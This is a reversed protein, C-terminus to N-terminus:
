LRRESTGSVSATQDRDRMKLELGKRLREQERALTARAAVIKERREAMEQQKQVAVGQPPRAEKDGSLRRQSVASGDGTEGADPQSRGLQQRKWAGRQAREKAEAVERRTIDGHQKIAQRWKSVDLQCKWHLHAVEFSFLSDAAWNREQLMGRTVDAVAFGVYHRQMDHMQTSTSYRFYAVIKRISTYLNRLLSTKRKGPRVALLQEALTRGIVKEALREPKLFKVARRNTTETSISAAESSRHATPPSQGFNVRVHSSRAENGPSFVSDKDLCSSGASEDIVLGPNSDTDSGEREEATSVSTCTSSRQSNSPPPAPKPPEDAIGGRGMAGEQSPRRSRTSDTSSQSPIKNRTSETSPKRERTSDTSSRRKRTSDTSPRRERTSDTSPRRERTSETSPRRERTSDTSPRREKTSDTSPEGERTSDTSPRREKTSDTSPKGERTSDASPRRQRTSDTSPRREKTSDTSPRRERISETSPRRERTPDTSSQSRSESLKPIRFNQLSRTPEELRPLKRPPPTASLEDGSMHPQKRPPPTASLEDGSRHPQKRPSPAASPEDGSRHPQKRPPPAASPEDGSRHPQKGPPPAVSPEGGSRHPQKGPPPAASPEGGSRHPQKGPPPTAHESGHSQKQPPPTSSPEDGTRHPQQQLHGRDDQDSTKSFLTTPKITPEGGHGGHGPDRPSSTSGAPAATVAAVGKGSGPKEGLDFGAFPLSTPNCPRQIDMMGVSARRPPTAEEMSHDDSRSVRVESTHSEPPTESKMADPDLEKSERQTATTRQSQRRLDGSNESKSSGPSAKVSEASNPKSPPRQGTIDTRSTADHHDSKSSSCVRKVVPSSSPQKVYKPGLVPIPAGGPDSESSLRRKSSTAIRPARTRAPDHSVPVPKKSSAHAVDSPQGATLRQKITEPLAGPLSVPLSVPSDRSSVGSRKEPADLTTAVATKKQSVSPPKNRPSTLDPSKRSVAKSEQTAPGRQGSTGRLAPGSETRTPQKFDELTEGPLQSGTPQEKRTSPQRPKEVESAAPLTSSDRHQQQSTQRSKKSASTSAERPLLPKDKDTRSQHQQPRAPGGSAGEPKPSKDASSPDSKGRLPMRLQERPTANRKTEELQLPKDRPRIPPKTERTRSSQPDGSSEKATRSHSVRSKKSLETVKSTPPQETPQDKGARGHKSPHREAFSSGQKPAEVSKSPISTSPPKAAQTKPPRSAEVKASPVGDHLPNVAVPPQKSVIQRQKPESADAAWGLGKATPPRTDAPAAESPLPVSGSAYPRDGQQNVPSVAAPRKLDAAPRRRDPTAPPHQRPDTAEKAKSQLPITTTTTSLTHTTKSQDMSSEPSLQTCLPHREALNASPSRASPRVSSRVGVSVSSPHSTSTGILKSQDTSLLATRQAPPETRPPFLPKPPADSENLARRNEELQVRLDQHPAGVIGIPSRRAFAPSTSGSSAPSVRLSSGGGSATVQPGLRSHIHSKDPHPGLRSQITSGRPEEPGLRSEITSRPSHPRSQDSSPPGLRQMVSSPGDSIPEYSSRNQQNGHVDRNSRGADSRKEKTRESDLERRDRREDRPNPRTSERVGSGPRPRERVSSGPRPRERVSSGPRPSDGQSSRPRANPSSELSAARPGIDPGARPRSDPRTDMRNETRRPPSRQRTNRSQRWLVLDSTGTSRQKEEELFAPERRNYYGEESQRRFPEERYSAGGDHFPGPVPEPYPNMGYPQNGPDGAGRYAREEAINYPRDYPQYGQGDGFDSYSDQSSYPAEPQSYPEFYSVSELPPPMGPDHREGFSSPEPGRFNEGGSYTNGCASYLDMRERQSDMVQPEPGYQGEFTGYRDGYPRTFDEHQSFGASFEGVDEAWQQEQGLPHRQQRPDHYQGPQPSGYEPEPYPTFGAAGEQGHVYPQATELAERM